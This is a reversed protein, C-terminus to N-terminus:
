LNRALLILVVVFAVAGALPKAADLWDERSAERSNDITHRVGPWFFLLAALAAVGLLIQEWTEM